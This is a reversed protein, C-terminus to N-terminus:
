SVCRTVELTQASAIRKKAYAELVQIELNSFLLDAPLGPCQRGLLTMLMIRWAIVLNIAIARQLREASRHAM